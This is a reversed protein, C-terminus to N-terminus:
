RVEQLYTEYDYKEKLVSSKSNIFDDAKQETAFTHIDHFIDCDDNKLFVLVVWVKM